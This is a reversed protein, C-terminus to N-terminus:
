HYAETRSRLGGLEVKRFSVVENRELKMRGFKSQPFFTQPSGWIVRLENSNTCKKSFSKKKMKM